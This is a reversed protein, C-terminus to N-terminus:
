LIQIHNSFLIVRKYPSFSKELNSSLPFTIIEGQSSITKEISLQALEEAIRLLEDERPSSSQLETKRQITLQTIQQSTSETNGLLKQISELSQMINYQTCSPNICVLINEQIRKEALDKACHGCLYETKYTRKYIPINTPARSSIITEVDHFSKNDILPPYESDGLYSTNELIRKIMNKNWLSTHKHYSVDGKSLTRALSSYSETGTLYLRFINEVVLSEKPHPLIEGNEMTYGFPMFRNKRM